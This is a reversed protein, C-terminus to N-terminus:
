QAIGCAALQDTIQADRLSARNISADMMVYSPRRMSQPFKM